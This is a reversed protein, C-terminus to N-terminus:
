PRLSYVLRECLRIGIEGGVMAAISAGVFGGPVDQMLPMNGWFYFGSFYAFIVNALGVIACAGGVFSLCVLSFMIPPEIFTALGYVARAVTRM